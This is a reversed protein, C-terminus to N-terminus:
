PYRSGSYSWQPCLQRLHAFEGFIHLGHASFPSKQTWKFSLARTSLSKTLFSFIMLAKGDLAAPAHLNHKGISLESPNGARPAKPCGYVTHGIPFRPFSFVWSFLLFPRGFALEKSCDHGLSAALIKQTPIIVNRPLFALELGFLRPPPGYGSDDFFNKSASIASIFATASVIYLTLSLNTLQISSSSLSKRRYGSFPPWNAM